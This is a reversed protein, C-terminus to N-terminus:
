LATPKFIVPRLHCPRSGPLLIRLVPFSSRTKGHVMVTVGSSVLGDRIGGRVQASATVDQQRWTWCARNLTEAVPGPIGASFVPHLNRFWPESKAPQSPDM